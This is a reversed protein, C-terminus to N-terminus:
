RAPVLAQIVNGPILYPRKRARPSGSEGRGRSVVKRALFAEEGFAELQRRWEYITTYHVEALVAAEKVGIAKASALVALKQEQDFHKGPKM